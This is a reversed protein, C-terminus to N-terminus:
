RLLFNFWHGLPLPSWVLRLLSKEGKRPRGSLREESGALRKRQAAQTYREAEKATQWGLIAM